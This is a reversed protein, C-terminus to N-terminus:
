LLLLPVDRLEVALPYALGHMALQEEDKTNMVVLEIHHEEIVARCDVVRHGMRVEDVVRLRPQTAALVERVSEIYDAPERLLKDRIREVAVETEISPIREIIRMYRRFTADDELHALVLTGDPSTLAVGFDILRDFGTLHDTLVMVRSTGRCSSDLRGEDSPAPLLMVPTSTAQTLVDVHAGLSFPYSRARGHLNRYCCILDPRVEEVKELVVAVDDGAAAPYAVWSVAEGAGEIVTLLEELDAVFRRTQEDDLDTVVLVRRIDVESAAYVEKAASKFASEFQDLKSM